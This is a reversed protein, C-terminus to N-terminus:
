RRRGGPSFPAPEAEAVPGPPAALAVGLAALRVEEPLRSEIEAPIEDGARYTWSGFHFTVGAPLKM